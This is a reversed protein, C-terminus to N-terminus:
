GDDGRDPVGSLEPADAPANPDAADGLAARLRKRARAIRSRVTGIPVGLAEAIQDYTLDAWAHLLLADRDRAPAARLAAALRSGLQHADLRADVEFTTATIADSRAYARWRSRERRRHHRLLNSAIGYLWPRADPRTVDFRDRVRFAETFTAASVDHGDAGLRRVCYADIARYHVEFIRAFAAPTALSRRILEGDHGVDWEQRL